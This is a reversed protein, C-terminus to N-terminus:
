GGYYIYHGDGYEQNQKERDYGICPQLRATGQLTLINTYHVLKRFLTYEYVVGCIRIRPLGYQQYCGLQAWGVVVACPRLGEVAM